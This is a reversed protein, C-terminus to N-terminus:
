TNNSSYDAHFRANLTTQVFTTMHQYHSGKWYIRDCLNCWQYENCWNSVLPPIRLLIAEKDVFQLPSNCEICRTFPAALSYLDFRGLVEIIQLHSEKNKILYAHTLAEHEVLSKDKSLLIRHENISITRLIEDTYDNRYLTDFGFMRLHHALKGLHVDLVFKPQRLPHNRVETVPSIDFSEFVPYFAVRDNEAISHTLRSSNGNVLILDIIHPSINIEKVLDEITTNPPLSLSFTVFRHESPLFDNLEAYCRVSVQVM